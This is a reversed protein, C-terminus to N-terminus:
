ARTDWDSPKPPRAFLVPHSADTRRCSPACRKEGGRVRRTVTRQAKKEAEAAMPHQVQDPVLEDSDAIFKVALEPLIRV